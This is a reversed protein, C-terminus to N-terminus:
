KKNQLNYQKEIEYNQRNIDAIIKDYKSVISNLDAFGEYKDLTEWIPNGNQDLGMQVQGIARYGGNAKDQEIRFNDLYGSQDMDIKGKWSMLKENVSQSTGQTFLNTTKDKDMYITIGQSSLESQYDRFLGPNEKSGKYKNIYSENLLKINLGVKSGDGGAIDAYTISVFPRSEGKKMMQLDTLIRQAIQRGGETNEPVSTAFDGVSFVADTNALADKLFSTGGLMATSQYAAPDVMQFSLGKATYDGAGTLGLWAKNGDPKAYKSFARKWEDAVGIQAYETPNSGADKGIFGGWNAVDEPSDYDYGWSGWNPSDGWLWGKGLITSAVDVTTGLIGLSTTASADVGSALVNYTGDFWEDPNNWSKRKDPGYLQQSQEKSYGKSTMLDTFDKENRVYGTEIDIYSEMADIAEKSYASTSKMAQIVSAAEEAYWEDYQRLAEQKAAINRRQETTNEWVNGLYDRLVPNASKKPDIMTSVVTNYMHDIQGGRIADPDFKNNKLIQYKEEITSAKALQAKVTTAASKKIQDVAGSIFGINNKDTNSAIANESKEFADYYATALTVYDEKAQVNGKDAAAKTQLVVQGLINKENASVDVRVSERDKEFENFNRQVDEYVNDKDTNITTGGLVDVAEPVNMEGGGTAAAQEEAGKLESKFMELEMDNRHKYEELLMRNKFSAAEVGYPNAQQSVEYDKYALTQAINGIDNGLTYATIFADIQGGTYKKNNKAVATQGNVNKVVELTSSYGEEFKNFDNRIQELKSAKSPIAGNMAEELKAKKQKTNSIQEELQRDKGAFLQEVSQAMENVYAEEAAELSGYQEKNSYMFDKRQLEAQAQYYQMVKPDKAISGMFLDQLPQILLPGNKTTTIWQGSIQDVSVNLDAEKALALAKKTIDQSAIYEANGMGLAQEASANRFAERNYQLLREGGEWWQGGCKETDVCNKFGQARQMQSQFNKTWVMDKVINKNDLLQNFVGTAAQVNADLSLDAGSMRQIDQNIIDFFKDRTQANDDRTLSTNLLSGYINSLQKRAADQKGQKFDLVGSYFNYDPTFPQIQPIYDTVGPIYTAM